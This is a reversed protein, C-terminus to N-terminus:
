RRDCPRRATRTRASPRLTLLPPVRGLSGPGAGEAGAGAGRVPAHRLPLPPPLPV